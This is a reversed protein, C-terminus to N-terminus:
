RNNWESQLRHFHESVPLLDKQRIEVEHAPMQELEIEGGSQDATFKHEEFGVSSM